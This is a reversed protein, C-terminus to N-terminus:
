AKRVEPGKVAKKGTGHCIPCTFWKKGGKDSPVRGTGKCNSCKIFEM